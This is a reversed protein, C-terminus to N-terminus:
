YQMRMQLTQRKVESILQEVLEAADDLYPLESVFQMVTYEPEVFMQDGEDFTGNTKLAVSVFTEGEASVDVPVALQKAKM